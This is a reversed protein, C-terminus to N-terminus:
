FNLFSTDRNNSNLSIELIPVLFDTYLLSEMKLLYILFKRKSRLVLISLEICKNNKTLFNSQYSMTYSTPFSKKRIKLFNQEKKLLNLNSFYKM